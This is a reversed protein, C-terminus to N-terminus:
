KRGTELKRTTERVAIAPLSDRNEKLYKRVENKHNKIMDRLLWSVAKTILINREHKLRNINSFALRVFRKDLSDRVPKVLLVLSARRLSINKSKSFEGLLKKWISWNVLMENGSFAIQTDIEAWGILGSFWATLKRPALNVRLDHYHGLIAGALFREEIFDGKYLSALLGQFEGFKLNEHKLFWEKMMKRRDPTATGYYKRPSGLYRNIDLHGSSKRPLKKLERLLEQHLKNV